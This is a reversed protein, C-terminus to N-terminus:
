VPHIPNNKKPWVREKGRYAELRYSLQDRIGEFSIIQDVILESALDYININDAYEEKKKNVFALRAEGELEAIKNSYVAKVAAEPGMVAILASPLALVSDTGFAPGAMAYLGAGYCKRVILTLKPVTAESVASIMKAGHRIIGAREVQSGVMYGPIDALFVLPINYANCLWIFRAGKDSSDVFLTGGKIKPQNAIIGIVEGKIRAWGTILEQAFLAKYELFSGKDVIREILEKMDFPQNQNPPIIESISRGQGPEEPVAAAPKVLYCQPFYAFYNKCIEIAQTDDKALVDGLGSVTCHMRAGGLEELSVKEGIVAEVMRPSGLFASAKGEVMIVLDSFAPVYAAGAPSAGFLITIQPIIGSLKVQNYFVKGGHNRGPFVVKQDTIRAGASDILYIIPLKMALAKEQLFLIKQVAKAGWSGAKVTFDAASFCVPRGNIKAMGVINADEPLEPDLCNSFTGEELISGEDFLLRLRERVFLKNEEKLKQHYKEPGGKHIREVEKLYKAQREDM